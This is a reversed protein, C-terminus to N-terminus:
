KAIFIDVEANEWDASREDYVEFDYTYSRKMESDWIDKWTEAICNPMKGKATVKQYEQAPVQISKLGDPVSAQPDVNCGIFYSFPGSHDGEYDFYVAYVKNEKKDPIQNFIGEKEFRQWLNGCDINSQGDQNTTKDKLEIGVLKFEPVKVSEM